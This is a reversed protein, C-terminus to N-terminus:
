VKENSGKYVGYTLELLGYTIASNQKACEQRYIKIMFKKKHIETARRWRKRNLDHRCKLPSSM